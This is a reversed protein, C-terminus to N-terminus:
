KNRDFTIRVLPHMKFRYLKVQLTVYFGIVTNGIALTSRHAIEQIIFTKDSFCLVTNVNGTSDPLILLHYRSSVAM